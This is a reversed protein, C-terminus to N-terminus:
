NKPFLPTAPPQIVESTFIGEIQMATSPIFIALRENVTLLEDVLSALIEKAKEPDTKALAWPKEADIRKNLDGIQKWLLDFAFNFEYADMKADFEPEDRHIAKRGAIENKKCLTALRQVLNGLDNALENYSAEYKDWTFDSDDTTSAHRLFYYRLPVLGHKELIEVPDVVNGISKSMKEGNVTIFGHALL